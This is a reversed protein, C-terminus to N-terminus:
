IVNIVWDEPTFSIEFMSNTLSCLFNWSFTNKLISMKGLIESNLNQFIELKLSNSLNSVIEHGEKALRHKEEFIYELYKRVRLKLSNDKTKEDLYQNVVSIKENIFIHRNNLDDILQGIKNMISIFVCCTILMAFINFIKEQKTKSVKDGYGITLMTEFAWYLIALYQNFFSNDFNESDDNIIKEPSVEDYSIKYMCCAIFHAMFYIWIILKCISILYNVLESCTYFDWIKRLM